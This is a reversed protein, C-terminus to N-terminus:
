FRSALIRFTNEIIRKARSLRYNFILEYLSLDNRRPFPRLMFSKLAFAEDAVFVFPFKKSVSYENILTPEPINFLNRDIAM